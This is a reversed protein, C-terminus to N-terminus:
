DNRAHYYDCHMIMAEILRNDELCVHLFLPRGKGEAPKIKVYHRCGACLNSVNDDEWLNPKTTNTKEM